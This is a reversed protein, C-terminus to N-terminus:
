TMRCSVSYGHMETHSSTRSCVGRPHEPLVTPEAPLVLMFDPQHHGQAQPRLGAQMEQWGHTGAAAEQAAGFPAPLHGDGEQSLLAKGQMRPTPFGLGTDQCLQAGESPKLPLIERAVTVKEFSRAM